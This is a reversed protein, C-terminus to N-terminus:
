EQISIGFNELLLLYFYEELLVNKKFFPCFMVTMLLLYQFLIQYFEVVMVSKFFYVGRVLLLIGVYHLVLFM